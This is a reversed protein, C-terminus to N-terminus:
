QGKCSSFVVCSIRHLTTYNQLGFRLSEVSSMIYDLVLGWGWNHSLSLSDWYWMLIKYM